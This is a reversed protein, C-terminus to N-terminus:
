TRTIVRRETLADHTQTSSVHARLFMIADRLALKFSSLSDLSSQSGDSSSLSYANATNFENLLHSM